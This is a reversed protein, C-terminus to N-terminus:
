GAGASQLCDHDGVVLLEILVDRVVVIFGQQSEESYVLPGLLAGAIYEALTIVVISM